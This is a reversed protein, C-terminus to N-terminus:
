DDIDAARGSEKPRWEMLVHTETAGIQRFGMRRYLRRARNEHFTGLRIPVERARAEAQLRHLLGSGIGRRQHEPHIVLERLHIDGPRHEIVCYGRDVGDCVLVRTKTSDWANGFFQDQQGEDWPGFQREVVDRYAAHHTRRAFERDSERAERLEITM